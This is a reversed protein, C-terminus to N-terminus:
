MHSVGRSEIKRTLSVLASRGILTNTSYIDRGNLIDLTVIYLLPQPSGSDEAFTFSFKINDMVSILYLLRYLTRTRM